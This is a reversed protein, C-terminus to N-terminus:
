KKRFTIMGRGADYPSVAVTVQDGLVIRIKNKHMKGSLRAIVMHGDSCEVRFIGGAGCHVVVGELEIHSDRPMANITLGNQRSLNEGIVM